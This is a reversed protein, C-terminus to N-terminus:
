SIVRRECLPRTDDGFLDREFQRMAAEYGLENIIRQSEAKAWRKGRESEAARKDAVSPPNALFDALEQDTLCELYANSTYRHNSPKVPAFRKLTPRTAADAPIVNTSAADSRNRKTTKTTAM